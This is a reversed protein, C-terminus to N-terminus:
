CHADIINGFYMKKGAWYPADEIFQASTEGYGNFWFLSYNDRFCKGGERLDWYLHYGKDLREILEDLKDRKASLITRIITDKDLFTLSEEEYDITAIGEFLDTLHGEIAEKREQKNYPDAVYDTEARIVGDDYMDLNTVWDKKPKQEELIEVVPFHM